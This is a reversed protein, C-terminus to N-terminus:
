EQSDDPPPLDKQESMIARLIPVTDPDPWTQLQWMGSRLFARACHMYAEDIEVVITLKPARGEITMSALLNPDATLFARGNIRLTEDVNPIIFLLGIHPNAIVTRLGDIRRNGPRAPIAITRRGLITVSGPPDGKASVDGNGEADSGAALYFPSAQIRRELLPTLCSTHKNVIADSPQGNLTYLDDLSEVRHARLRAVVDEGIITAAMSPPGRGVVGNMWLRAM